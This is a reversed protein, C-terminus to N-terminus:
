VLAHLCYIAILGSQTLEKEEEEEYEGSGSEEELNV